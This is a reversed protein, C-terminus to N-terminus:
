NTKAIEIRIQSEKSPVSRVWFPSLTIDAHDITSSAAFRSIVEQKSLGALNERGLEQPSIKKAYTGTLKAAIRANGAKWDTRTIALAFSSVDYAIFEEDSKTEARLGITMLSIIDHTEVVFGRAQVTASATYSLAHSGLSASTSQSLVELQTLDERVPRGKAALTLEGAAKQKAESLVEQQAANISDQTLANSAAQGGSFAHDSEAFVFTQTYAPLKDVIFKGPAVDGVSGKEKATVHVTVTGKPPIVVREDILFFIGSSEHRLHTKPLLRQEENQNNTLTVTGTAFDDHVTESKQTFTKEIHIEKEVISAPLTFRLYDPSSTKSSLVIDKSLQRPAVKPHVAITARSLLTAAIFMSTGVILVVTALLAGKM